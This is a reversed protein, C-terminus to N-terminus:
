STGRCEFAAGLDVNTICKQCLVGSPHGIMGCPFFLEIVPLLRIVTFRLRPHPFGEETTRLVLEYSIGLAATISQM